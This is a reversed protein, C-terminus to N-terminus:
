KWIHFNLTFKKEQILKRWDIFLFVFVLIIGLLTGSITKWTLLGDWIAAANKAAYDGALVMVMDSTFKGVLFAPIVRIAKIRAMGAATFLPTSPLPVLTYLLVFLQIKWGDGSLKEGIFQVDDNKEKRIIKSSLFPIYKSLVYRGLASGLVGVVLVVWINLHYKMQFFVMVTWAPPGIFPVSDVIFSAIFVLIYHWMVICLLYFRPSDPQSTDNNFSILFIVSIQFKCM